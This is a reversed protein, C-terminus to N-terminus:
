RYLLRFERELRERDAKRMPLSECKNFGDNGCYVCRGHKYSNAGCGSCNSRNDPPFIMPHYNLKYGGRPKDQISEKAKEIFKWLANIM